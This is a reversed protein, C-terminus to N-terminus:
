ADLKKVPLAIKVIAGGDEKNYLQISGFHTDLILKTTILGLGFKEKDEGFEGTEILKNFFNFFEEPFGKGNDDIEIIVNENELYSKLVIKLSNKELNLSNALVSFLSRKMLELDGPILIDDKLKILDFAIEKIEAEDKIYDYVEDLLKNVSIKEINNEYEKTNIFIILLLTKVFENLKDTSLSLDTILELQTDTLDTDEFSNTVDDINNLIKWFEYSILNLFDSKTKELKGLRENAIKLQKTKKAVEIELIDKQNKIILHTNVRALLEKQNFPKTIYDQAGVEFGQIISKHDTKATLFIVPVDENNARKRIEKCVEYGDMGPMMIDLLILDFELDDLINLAEAGSTAYAIEYNKINLAFGLIQLNEYVDDVILIRDKKDKINTQM